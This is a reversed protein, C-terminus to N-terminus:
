PTTEKEVSASVHESWWGLIRDIYRRTTPSDPIGGARAVAGKGAQYAALALDVRGYRELNGALYRAGAALNEPPDFPRSVGLAAATAPMLQTLGMAGASSVADARFGSE